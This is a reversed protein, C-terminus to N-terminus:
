NVMAHTHSGKEEEAVSALTMKKGRELFVVFAKELETTTQLPILYVNFLKVRCRQLKELRTFPFRHCHIAAQHQREWVAVFSGV